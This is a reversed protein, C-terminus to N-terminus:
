AHSLHQTVAFFVLIIKADVPPGFEGAAAPIVAFVSLLSFRKV